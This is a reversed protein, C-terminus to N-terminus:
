KKKTSTAAATKRTTRGRLTTSRSEAYSGGAMVDNLYNRNFQPNLDEPFYYKRKIWVFGDSKSILAVDIAGGVTEVDNSVRRKLSTLAVLSEALNALEDRPLLSIMQVIPSAYARNTYRQVQDVLQKMSVHVAREIEGRNKITNKRVAGYKSLVELCNDKMVESFATMLASGLMPDLGTMFRQVMEGQAFARMAGSMSRSVDITSDTYLKLQDGIYGDCELSVVTPFYEDDGFGAIVVGSSLPSPHKFLIAASIFQDAVTSLDEDKFDGVFEKTIGDVIGGYKRIFASVARPPLWKDKEAIAAIKDIFVGKLLHVYDESGISIGRSISTDDAEDLASAFWSRIVEKLNRIKDGSTINGFKEVYSKFDEAWDSVTAESTIGRQKRYLKILTEWPYQMFDANGYIMVGVPHIKSLTFLKNVTDYTKSMRSGGITVKSDAALAIASKNMVVVEATM